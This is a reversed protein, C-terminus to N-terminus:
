RWELIPWGRAEATARLRADPQTAHPHDVFELLPLDNYSDSYGWTEWGEAFGTDHAALWEAFADLKGQQYTQIGTPEGTFRGEADLEPLTALAGDAGVFRAIPEVLHHMSASIVLTAHGQERHERLREVGGQMLRPAVARQVFAEVQERVTDRQRGILPGLTFRLHETMDLTGAHYQLDQERMRALLAEGEEVWGCAIVWELWLHTCDGDLLTDDLDFIALASPQQAPSASSTAM